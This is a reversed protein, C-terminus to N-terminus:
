DRNNPGRSFPIDREDLPRRPRAKDKWGAVAIDIQQSAPGHWACAAPDDAGGFFHKCAVIWGYAKPMLWAESGCGPCRPLGGEDNDSM